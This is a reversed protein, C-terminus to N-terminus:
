ADVKSIAITAYCAIAAPTPPDTPSPLTTPPQPNPNPLAYPHPLDPHAKLTPTPPHVDVCGRRPARPTMRKDYITTVQYDAAVKHELRKEPLRDLTRTYSHVKEYSHTTKSLTHVCTPTHNM